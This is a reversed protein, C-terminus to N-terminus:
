AGNSKEFTSTELQTITIGRHMLKKLQKYIHRTTGPAVHAIFVDTKYKPSWVKQGVLGREPMGTSLKRALQRARKFNKQSM